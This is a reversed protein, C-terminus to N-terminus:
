RRSIQVDVRPSAPSGAPVVVVDYTFGNATFLFTEHIWEPNTWATGAVIADWVKDIQATIQNKVTGTLPM